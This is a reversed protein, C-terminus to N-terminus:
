KQGPPALNIELELNGTALRSLNPDLEIRGMSSNGFVRGYQLKVKGDGCLPPFELTSSKGGGHAPWLEYQLDALEIDKDAALSVEEPLQGLGGADM